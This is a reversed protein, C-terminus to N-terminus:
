NKLVIITLKIYSWSSKFATFFVYNPYQICPSWLEDSQGECLSVFHAMYSRSPEVRLTVWFPWALLTVDMRSYMFWMWEALSPKLTETYTEHLKLYGSFCFLECIVVRFQVLLPTILSPQLNKGQPAQFRPLVKRISLLVNVRVYLAFHTGFSGSPQVRSTVWCLTVDM